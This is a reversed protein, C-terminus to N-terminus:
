VEEKIAILEQNAQKMSGFANDLHTQVGSLYQENRTSRYMNIAAYADLLSSISNRINVSMTEM